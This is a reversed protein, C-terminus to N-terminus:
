WAASYDHLVQLTMMAALEGRDEARVDSGGSAGPLAVKDPGQTRPREGLIRPVRIERSPTHSRSNPLSPTGMHMSPMM